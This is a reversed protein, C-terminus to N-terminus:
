VTIDLLAKDMKEAIKLVAANASVDTSSQNINILDADLNEGTSSANVINVASQTARSVASNIGNAAISLASSM